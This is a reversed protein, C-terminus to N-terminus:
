DFDENLKNNDNPLFYHPPKDLNENQETQKAASNKFAYHKVKDCGSLFISAAFLVVHFQIKM